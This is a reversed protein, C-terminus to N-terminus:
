NSRFSFGFEVRRPSAFRNPDIPEGSRLTLSTEPSGTDSYVAGNIYDQNFLNFVRLFISFDMFGLDFYKEARLDVTAYSPKRGSNHEQQTQFGVGLDPTYPQGSAYRIITSISFDDPMQYVATINLTHRQDWNFPIDRPRPDEGGLARDATEKPDSSNGNAFQLSYDLSLGFNDVPQQILSLTVGSVSGYDVNTNRAYQGFNYTEIVETGLLDRIDKYFFTLDLGLNDNLAQKLGVEYQVTIEPGLDPNGLYDQQYTAGGTLFELVQYNANEYLASYAPMQYFHGYSFHLASKDTLPFGFGLRPAITQKITAKKLVSSPVGSISNAPNQLNSPVYAQPDFYEYRLGARVVLDGLEIRDQLYIAGQNPKYTEVKKFRLDSPNTEKPLLRVIGTEPDSQIVLQGPPGFKLENVQGEIGAEIYNSNNAQWTFDLKLVGFNTLQSNRGYDVGSIIAGYEYGSISQPYDAALYQPDYISEYKYEKYDYYNHRFSIKYFMDNSLTHTFDIGHNISFTKKDKEGEPNLRYAFNYVKGWLDNVIAVYSIIINDISRNTLKFQGSWEDYPNMPVIERDGTPDVIGNAIDNQDTPLFRREGYLFGNNHFRRASALFTTNPIFTPGSVTLQYNQVTYPLYDKNHPYRMNDFPLYDGGYIEGSYAFKNTGSKLTTNIIGSMAHGYKADFTGSVVSVEEIVSRDLSLSSENNFPNNISVGEVQFQIEGSRGGRIHFKGDSTQVTGAQLKIIDTLSQVPLSEIDESSVTKVSSTQNFEIVPKEATVVVVEGEIAEPSLTVDISTTKDANIIVNQVIKTGYGIYRFDVTYTGPRINIISYYGEFDTAAGLTAGEIIVNASILPEGTSADTVKGSLKGTQAFSACVPMLILILVSLCLFKESSLLLKQLLQKMM